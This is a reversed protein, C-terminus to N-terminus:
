LADGWRLPHRREDQLADGMESTDGRMKSPMTFFVSAAGEVWRAGVFVFARWAEGYGGISIM